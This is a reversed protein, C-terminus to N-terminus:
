GVCPPIERSRPVVDMRLEHIVGRTRESARIGENLAHHLLASVRHAIELLPRFVNGDVMRGDNRVVAPRMVDVEAFLATVCACVVEAAAELVIPLKEALEQVWAFRAVGAHAVGLATQPSRLCSPLRARSNASAQQM